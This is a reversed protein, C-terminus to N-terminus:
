DRIEQQSIFPFPCAAERMSRVTLLFLAIRFLVVTWWWNLTGTRYYIFYYRYIIPSYFTYRRVAHSLARVILSVCM